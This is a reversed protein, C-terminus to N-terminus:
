PRTLGITTALRTVDASTPGARLVATLAARATPRTRTEAPAIRDAIVLARGAAPPDGVDLHARVIDILHAARHEAPLRCWAGSATAHQHTTIAQHSDGLETAILARALDVTTPGFGIDGSDARPHDGHATALRAARNALDRAATADACTAAAIAAETLLTGALALDNASSARSPAPLLRHAATITAAMALRGRDQARLAQALPIAAVATRRPDGATAAMARDAALWALEAAGFKVLVQAALRYVRVLLDATHGTGAAAEVHRADALLDPLLRMVQPHHAHRYAAWANRVRRDLEAASPPPQHEDAGSGAADYCALAARVREIAAAVGTTPPRISVRPLLVEPDVGLVEAVAEIVSLRDLTRVGREVKDVWSKSGGLRDAFVQQTMGLRARLQAVQRGIPLEAADPRDRTTM